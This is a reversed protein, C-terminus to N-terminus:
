TTRRRRTFMWLVVVAIILITYEKAGLDGVIAGLDGFIAEARSLGLQIASALGSMMGYEGAAQALLM